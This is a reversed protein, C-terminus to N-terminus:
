RRTDIRSSTIWSGASSEADSESSSPPSSEGDGVDGLKGSPVVVVVDVGIGGLEVCIVDVTVEIAIDGSEVCSSDVGMENLVACRVDVAVLRGAVWVSEVVTSVECFSLM